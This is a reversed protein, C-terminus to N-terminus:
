RPTVGIQKNLADYDIAEWDEAIRGDVFRFLTMGNLAIAQSTPTEGLMSAEHTGTGVYRAAVKATVVKPMDAM